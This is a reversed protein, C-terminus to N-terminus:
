FTSKEFEIKQGFFKGLFRLIQLFSATPCVNLFASYITPGLYSEQVINDYPGLVPAPTRSTKYQAIERTEVQYM